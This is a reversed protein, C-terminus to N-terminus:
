ILKFNINWYDLEKIFCYYYHCGSNIFGKDCSTDSEIYVCYTDYTYWHYNDHYLMYTKSLLEDKYAINYNIYESIIKLLYKNM